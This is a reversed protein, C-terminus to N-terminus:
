DRRCAREMLQRYAEVAQQPCVSNGLARLRDMVFPTGNVIGRDSSRALHSGDFRRLEPFRRPSGYDLSLSPRPEEYQERERERRERIGDRESDSFARSPDWGVLFFRDRIHSAGVDSARFCSWEANFGIEALDGLVLDLGRGPFTIASVNELYIFRPRVVRIIRAFERWLGSKEGDKIGKRKGAQSIDQCPFGGALVDVRPPNELEEVDEFIPVDPWHRALVRRCYPDRECQWAVRGGTVAEVALDLGGIGSFLSGIKLGKSMPGRGLHLLLRLLRPLDLPDVM